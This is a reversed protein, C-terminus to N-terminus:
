KATSSRPAPTLVVACEGPIHWVDEPKLSGVRSDDGRQRRNAEEWLREGQMRRAAELPPTGSGGYRPHDSDWAMSWHRGAPPALLPEPAPNFELTRGLNVILLRDDGAGSFFRLLIVRDGLVAGDVAGRRQVGFAPDERRLRLLDRHLEYADRHTTRETFDLKCRMFTERDGPDALRQHVDGLEINPFQVLFDSRGQRVLQSLEPTHDAFYLFPASSAFEGGQFIMPTQPALLTLATMARWLGPSSQQHIRQGTASNAVQDHNELCNIFCTPELDLTPSGRRQGQWRYWQGQYLFGYKVASLFEQPTGTYDAYYAESKGTLAVVAAHHYDDNWLADLGYGGQDLDRVLTSNQPENEGVFITSRRGAAARGREVIDALIHRPGEDYINQTADLRLGDFHFEDIWYAANSAFFERVPGADPGDFNIAEGWDTSHKTSFYEDAYQRLYNGDPGIHNYVVDLIVALGAGHAQDIFARIEDPTGYRHMPAFLDVGDYGWGFEGPFEAIPMIELCTIGLDALERLERAAARWTGESTFTGLHMEYIVQGAIKAGRWKRDTWRFAGPDVIQSPGHPGEPQFRSAPDPFADGGDLRYRYRAGVAVDDLTGSFYGRGEAALGVVRPGDSQRAPVIVVDVQRRKPAWVRFHVAGDPRVEAGIPLRRKM